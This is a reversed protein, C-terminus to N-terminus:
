RDGSGDPRRAEAIERWLDLLEKSRGLKSRSAAESFLDAHERRLLPAVWDTLTDATSIQHDWWGAGSTAVTDAIAAALVDDWLLPVASRMAALTRVDVGSSVLSEICIEQRRRTPGIQSVVALTHVRLIEDDIQAARQDIASAPNVSVVAALESRESEPMSVVNVGVFPLVVDDALEERCVFAARLLWRMQQELRFAEDRVEPSADREVHINVDLLDYYRPFFDRLTATLNSVLRPLRDPRTTRILTLAYSLATSTYIGSVDSFIDAVTEIAVDYDLSSSAPGVEEIFEIAAGLVDHNAPARLTELVRRGMEANECATAVKWLRYQADADADPYTEALLSGAVTCTGGAQLANQAARRVAVPDAGNSAPPDVLRRVLAEVDISGGSTALAVSLECAALADSGLIQNNLLERSREPALRFLSWFSSLQGTVSKARRFASELLEIDGDAGGYEAITAASLQALEPNAVSGLHRRALFLALSPPATWWISLEESSARGPFSAQSEARM